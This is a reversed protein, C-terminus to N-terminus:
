WNYTATLRIKRGTDVSDYHAWYDQTTVVYHKDFLNTVNLAYRWAGSDYRVMADTLIVSDFKRTNYYNYRSGIYRLGTGFSWGQVTEGPKVTDLWLSASHRPVDQTRRGVIATDMDKSVKNNLLTYALTLNINKFAQMNAELELGRSTIEGTQIQFMTDAPDTNMVNQKRLDFLAATFRANSNQPEIQVGLEYQKGTTPDFANGHRDSGSQGQFSESYSIYPKIGNGADYVIGARGSFANQDTITTTGNSLNRFTNDYRDYRGGLIATWREGFKLQDQLYYGNQKTTGETIYSYAPTPISQGYNIATLNLDPASGGGWRWNYSGKQYDFGILTTHNVAGNSWKAQFNTDISDSNGYRGTAKTSRTIIQNIADLSNASVGQQTMSTHFHNVTQTATWIDNLKHELIYGIQSQNTKSRDFSRDGFYTKSSIGSGYFSSGPLYVRKYHEETAGRSDDQQFYSLVTLSTDETPQWTLAPAIFSHKKTSSDIYLDEDSKLATLRFLLKGDDSAPGSLDLAGNFQKNSGSQLHLERLPEKTPRKSVNNIIGGPSGAGYLISAPGRLVEVRELSYMDFNSGYYSGLRGSGNNYAGDYAFGRINMSYTNSEGSYVASTIGPTYALAETFDTVGRNDMQERTIVSISQATESLPTDTKTGINNRKAVYGEKPMREGTVEFADFTFEPYTDEVTRTDSSTQEPVESLAEAQITAPVPWLLTSGILGCLLRRKAPIFKKM